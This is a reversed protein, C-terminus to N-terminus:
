VNMYYGIVVSIATLTGYIVEWVGIKMAKVKRRYPSLGIVSRGLLIVFMFATFISALGKFVLFGIVLLSM